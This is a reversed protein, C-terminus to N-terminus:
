IESAIQSITKDDKITELAVEVKFKSSYKRNRGM